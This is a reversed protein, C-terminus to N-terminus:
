SDEAQGEKFLFLRTRSQANARPVKQRWSPKRRSKGLYNMKMKVSLNHIEEQFDERAKGVRRCDLTSIHKVGIM